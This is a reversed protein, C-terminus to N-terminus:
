KRFMALMRQTVLFGGAVNITAILIATAGLTSALTMDSFGPTINSLHPAGGAAQILGGVLIIGSIANTVSMLPTHLAASVNWIVQWGIFCSLVFVTFHQIFDQPMRMGIGVLLIATVLLVLSQGFAPKKPPPTPTTPEAAAPPPEETKPEAPQPPTPPPAVKPPPWTIEGKHVVLASRVVEDELDLQWADNGGLDELLHLLNNGFFRSSVTALRSTLDTYGLVHVGNHNVHEDARTVECNGGNEAALDVIVSGPKMSEVMERTILVPAKRGPILATTVIIDVERAQVAFLAMEAAIFEDSMTKAYGGEGEGSEEFKLELFEAGLSGVQEKTALRTDFARVQSGLARASAIAALGAVGAGIVLVKAPPAKGAATMQPGFFSGYVSAAEMIARYGAINAMSSLVDMKQARTIRPVCDLALASAGRERIAELLEPNTAPQVLSVLCTNPQLLETEHIGLRPHAHPARVKLVLDAQAWLAQVDEVVEAGAQTYLTDPFAAHVGADKEIAVSFGMSIFKEVTEPTAAVRKEGSQVERPIAIRM